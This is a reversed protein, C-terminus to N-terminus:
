KSGILSKVKGFFGGGQKSQSKPEQKKVITKYDLKPRDSRCTVCQKVDANNRVQCVRCTWKGVMSADFTYDAEDKVEEEVEPLGNKISTMCQNFHNNLATRLTVIEQKYAFFKDTLQLQGLENTEVYTVWEEENKKNLKELSSELDSQLFDFFQQKAAGKLYFRIPYTYALSRRAAIVLEAIEILFQYDNPSYMPCLEHVHAIETKIKEVRKEAFKIANYHAIYRASFHELKKMEFELAAVDDQEKARGAAVVDAWSNCLGRGTEKNHNRYDGLCLWCFEYKCNKCTM